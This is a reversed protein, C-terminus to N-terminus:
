GDFLANLDIDARMGDKPPNPIYYELRRITDCYAASLAEEKAWLDELTAEAEPTLGLDRVIERKSHGITLLVEVLLKLNTGDEVTAM